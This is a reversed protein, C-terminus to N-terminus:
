LILPDIGVRGQLFNGVKMVDTLTKKPEIQVAFTEISILDSRNSNGRESERERVCVWVSERKRVCERERVCM